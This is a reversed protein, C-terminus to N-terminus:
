VSSRPVSRDSAAISSRMLLRLAGSECATTRSKALHGTDSTMSDLSPKRPPGVAGVHSPWSCTMRSKMRVRSAQISALKGQYPALRGPADYILASEFLEQGDERVLTPVKALPNLSRLAADSWPNVLVLDIRDGLQLEHATVRVKRAFPSTPAYFLKM